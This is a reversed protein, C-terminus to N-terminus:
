YMHLECSWSDVLCLCSNGRTASNYSPVWRQYTHDLESCWQELPAAPHTFPLFRTHVCRFCSFSGLFLGIFFKSGRRSSFHSTLTPRQILLSLDLQFSGAWWGHGGGHQLKGWLTSDYSFEDCFSWNNQLITSLPHSFFISSLLGDSHLKCFVWHGASCVFFLGGKLDGWWQGEM